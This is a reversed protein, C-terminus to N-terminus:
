LVEECESCALLEELKDATQCAIGYVVTKESISIIEVALNYAKELIEREKASLAIVTKTEVKM